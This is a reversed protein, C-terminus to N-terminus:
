DNWPYCTVKHSSPDIRCPQDQKIEWNCDECVYFDREVKYIDFHHLASEWQFSCQYLTTGITGATFSFEFTEGFHLVHEGLDLTQSKCHHTLDLNNYLKNIRVHMETGFFGYVVHTKSNSSAMTLQLLIMALVSIVVAKHLVFRMANSALQLEM